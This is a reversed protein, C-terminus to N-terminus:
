LTKLDNYLSLLCPTQGIETIESKLLLLNLAKIQEASPKWTPQPRLSKLWSAYLSLDHQLKVTGNKFFDIIEDLMKEDEKSWPKQEIKCTKASNTLNQEGQKEIWTIWREADRLSFPITINNRKKVLWDLLSRRVMEDESEALEPFLDQLDSIFPKTTPYACLQRAKELAENYKKEYDM